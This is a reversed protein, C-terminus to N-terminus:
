LPVLQTSWSVAVEGVQPTPCGDVIAIKVGRAPLLECPVGLVRASPGSRPDFNSAELKMTLARLEGDGAIDTLTGVMSKLWWGWESTLAQFFPSCVGRYPCYRCSEASPSALEAPTTTRQVARNYAEVESLVESLLAEAEDPDVSFSLRRGEPTQISALRPWQGTTRQWMAAYLLLQRRHEDRIEDGYESSTKIDVIHVGADDLEVRDVRGRLPIGPPELTREVLVKAVGPEPSPCREARRAVTRALFRLLRVKTLQYRPWREPPPVPALRWAALLQQYKGRVLGDWAAELRDRVQDPGALDFEGREVREVLAHSIDGLVSFPTPRRFTGFGSDLRYAVRLRCQRLEAFLSPTLVALAQV